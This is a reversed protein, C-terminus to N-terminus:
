EPFGALKLCPLFECWINHRNFLMHCSCVHLFFLFICVCVCVCVYVCLPLCSIQQWRIRAKLTSQSMFSSHRYELVYVCMNYMNAILPISSIIISLKATLSLLYVYGSFATNSYEIVYFFM